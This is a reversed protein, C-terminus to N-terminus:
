YLIIQYRYGLGAKKPKRRLSAHMRAIREIVGVFRNMKPKTWEIPSITM